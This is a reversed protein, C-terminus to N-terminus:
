NVSPQCASRRPSRTIVLAQAVSRRVNRGVDEPVVDLGVLDVCVLIDGGAFAFAANAWELVTKFEYQAVNNM